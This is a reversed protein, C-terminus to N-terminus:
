ACIDCINDSSIDRYVLLASIEFSDARKMIVMIRRKLDIGFPLYVFAKDTLSAAIDECKNLIEFM